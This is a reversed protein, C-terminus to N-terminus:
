SFLIFLGGGSSQLVANSGNKSIVTYPDLEFTTSFKDSKDQKLLVKDGVDIGSVKPNRRQDAYSKMKSKQEADRDRTELDNRHYAM